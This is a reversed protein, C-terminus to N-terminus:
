KTQRTQWWQDVRIQASKCDDGPAAPGAKLIIDARRNARDAAEKANALAMLHDVKSDAAADQLDKVGDSCQKAATAAQTAQDKAKQTEDRQGLYAWGLALNFALSVAIFYNM